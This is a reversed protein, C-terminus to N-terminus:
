GDEQGGEPRASLAYWTRGYNSYRYTGKTNSIVGMRDRLPVVWGIARGLGCLSYAYIPREAVRVEEETLRRGPESLQMVAARLRSNESTLRGIESNKANILNTFDLAFNCIELETMEKPM